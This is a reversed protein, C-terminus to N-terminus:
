VTVQLKMLVTRYWPYMGPGYRITGTGVTNRIRIRIQNVKCRIRIGSRMSTIRIQVSASLGDM